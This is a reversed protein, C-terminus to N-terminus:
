EAPSVTIKTPRTWAIRQPNDLDRVLLPPLVFEGVFTPRVSFALLHQERRSMPEPLVIWRDDQFESYQEQSVADKNIAAGVFNSWSPQYSTEVGEVGAPLLQVVALRQAGTYSDTQHVEVTYYATEFQKLQAAQAGEAGVRRLQIDLGASYSDQLRAPVGEIEYSLRLPQNGRNAIRIGSPPFNGYDFARLTMGERNVKAISGEPTVSVSNASFPPQQRDLITLAASAARAMWSSTVVNENRDVGAFGIKALVLAPPALNGEILLAGVRAAEAPSEALSPLSTLRAATVENQAEETRGFAGYASALLLRRTPDNEVFQACVDALSRFLAPGIRNLRVLV